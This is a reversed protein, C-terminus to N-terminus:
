DALRGGCYSCELYQDQILLGVWCLPFCFLLLV